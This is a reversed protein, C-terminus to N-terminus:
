PMGYDAPKRGDQEIREALRKLYDRDDKDNEWYWAGFGEVAAMILVAKTKRVGNALLLEYFLDNSAERDVQHTHYLWDHFVAATMFRPLFPTGIVQWVPPPISAGDFQFFKPVKIQVDDVETTVDEAVEYADELKNKDPKIVPLLVLADM